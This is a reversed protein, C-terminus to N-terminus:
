RANGGLINQPHRADPSSRRPAGRRPTQAVTAAGLVTGGAARVARALEELTSGTTVIDDVLVVRVGRLEHRSRFAGVLNRRRGGRGLGVQDVARRDRRLVASPRGGARRVLLHVPDFGRAVRRAYSSPPSVLLVSGPEGRQGELIARVSAALLPALLSAAPRRHREKLALILERVVGDYAAASVVRIPEAGVTREVPAREAALASVCGACLPGDADGCGLCSFPVLVRGAERIAALVAEM